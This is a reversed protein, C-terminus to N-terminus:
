NLSWANSWTCVYRLICFAGKEFPSQSDPLDVNSTLNFYLAFREPCPGVRFLTNDVEIVIDGDKLYYDPDRCKRFATTSM